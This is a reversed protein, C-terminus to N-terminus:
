TVQRIPTLSIRSVWSWPLNSLQIVQDIPPQNMNPSNHKSTFVSKSASIERQKASAILLLRARAADPPQQEAAWNKIAQRIYIDTSDRM